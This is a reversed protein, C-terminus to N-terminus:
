DRGAVVRYGQEALAAREKEALKRETGLVGYCTCSFSGPSAYFSPNNGLTLATTINREDILYIGM